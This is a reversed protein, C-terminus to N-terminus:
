RQPLLKKGCVAHFGIARRGKGGLFVDDDPSPKGPKAAAHRGGDALGTVVSLYHSVIDHM